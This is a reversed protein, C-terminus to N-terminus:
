SEINLLVLFTYDIEVIIPTPDFVELDSIKRVKSIKEERREYLNLGERCM